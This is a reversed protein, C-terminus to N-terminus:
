ESDMEQGLSAAGILAAAGGLQSIKIEFFRRFPIPLYKEIRERVSTELGEARSIGGSLIIVEPDLTVAISSIGRAFTEIAPEILAAAEKEGRRAWLERFDNPLGAEKALKEIVDGSFYREFHGVGGCGCESDSSILAMHGCEGAMGHAGSLLRGNAFIGTGIGSGLTLVVFDNMGQAAGAIKEGIAVCNADNEIRVEADIGHGKLLSNLM